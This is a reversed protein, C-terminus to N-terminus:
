AKLLKQIKKIEDKAHAILIKVDPELCEDPGYWNIHYEKYGERVWLRLGHYIEDIGCSDFFSGAAHKKLIAGAKKFKGFETKM